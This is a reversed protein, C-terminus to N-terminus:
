TISIRYITTSSNRYAPVANLEGERLEQVFTNYGNPPGMYVNWQAMSQSIVVYATRRHLSAIWNSVQLANGENVYPQPVFQTDSPMVEVPFDNYTAAQLTPFQENPLVIMSGKPLHSYLWQSAQLEQVTFASSPVLAFVGDVGAFLALSAAAVVAPVSISWRFRLLQDALIMACWPASFLYVRYIAEGGYNSGFAVVFPAFALTAPLLVRGPRLVNRMVVLATSLWMLGAMATVCHSTFVQYHSTNQVVSVGAANAIPDGGFLGGYEQSILQYHLAFFGGAIAGLLVLLWRPRILGFVMLGAISVLGMYPTIQHATVIVIFLLTILCIASARTRKTTAPASPVGDLVRARLKGLRSTALKESPSVRLWRLMILVVGLWLLYAFAQPSLYDQGIWAVFAEYLLVALWLQKRKVGLTRLIAVVVFANALEFAPPAWAAFTITNVHAFSALLGVGAFFTPWEQYIDTPDTVRGYKQFGSIVGIHKYVWAYEPTHYIIPVAAHIVLILAVLNLWLAWGRSRENLIHFLFAVAVAAIGAGFWPNTGLLLGSPRVNAPTIRTLGVIWSAVGLALILLGADASRPVGSHAQSRRARRERSNEARYVLQLNNTTM